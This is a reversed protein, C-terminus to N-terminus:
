EVEGFLEELVDHMTVIGVPRSKDDIVIAMHIRSQRIEQLLEEISKQKSVFIPKRLIERISLEPNEKRRRDFPLLDKVYLLGIINTKQKEVIPVRSFQTERIQRLLEEYPTDIPYSVMLSFPTMIQSVVKGSFELAKHILEREAEEVEGSKTGLELLHRFEEELTLLTEEKKIAGFRQIFWDSLRVLVFRAPKLLAYLPKLLLVTIPALAPALLMGISKPLVEGVILILFTGVAVSLLTLLEWEMRGHLWQYFVSAVIISIAINTIENGFLITVLIDRPKSLFIVLQKTLPNNSKKFRALQTRNLTFFVTEAGAFFASFLLLVALLGIQFLISSLM